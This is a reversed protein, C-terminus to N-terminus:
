YLIRVEIKFQSSRHFQLYRTMAPINMGYVDLLSFIKVKTCVGHLVAFFKHTLHVSGINQSVLNM